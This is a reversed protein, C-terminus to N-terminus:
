LIQKYLIIVHSYTKVTVALRALVFGVAQSWVRKVGGFYCQKCKESGSDGGDSSLKLKKRMVRVACEDLSAQRVNATINPTPPHITKTPGFV